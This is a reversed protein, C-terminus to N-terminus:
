NFVKSKSVQIYENESVGQIPKGMNYLEKIKDRDVSEEVKVAGIARAEDVTLKISLRSYRKVIFGAVQVTKEKMQLLIAESLSKKVEELEHIKEVIERYASVQEEFSAM